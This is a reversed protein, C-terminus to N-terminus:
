ALDAIDELEASLATARGLRQLGISAYQSAQATNGLHQHVRAMTLAARPVTMGGLTELYEADRLENVSILKAISEVSDHKQFVPEGFEFYVRALDGALRSSPNLIGDHYAWSHDTVGSPALRWKFECDIQKIARLDPLENRGRVPLFALHLGLSVWCRKGDRSGQIWITHIVEGLARRFHFGSGKFGADRLAPFFQERLISLFISQHNPKM